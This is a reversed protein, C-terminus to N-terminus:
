QADLEAIVRGLEEIGPRIAELQIAAFGLRFHNRNAAPDDFFVDGREIVIGARLAAAALAVCDLDAPGQIWISVGGPPATIKWPLFDELAETLVQWKRQLQTRRRSITRHYQGSEILLAMARQPHGPIHRIKYRRQNRLETILESEAVLYGMRLGPALFKTFSGLYIVHESDPLAKLAPTPKGRYRFESDYDDEIVLAGAQRTGTLIQRRRSGSLTVNTPSHHSPTLYLLDLEGLSDPPVLGHEDVALPRLTAGTRAFTHRADVYGPNEVGVVTERGMMTQALLDLGQQSGATILINEPQVIIGRAPLVRKCLEEILFPDDEDVSDRLSYFLHPPDLSDRLARSWALRPFDRVDVQGAVFPYPYASWDRVKTIEPMGADERPRIHRSWDIASADMPAPRGAPVAKRLMETNIFYGRRSHSEIIGSALMEQYAANVTNRSLGLERALERSSPLPQNPVLSGSFIQHELAQRLQRYLPEASETSVAIPARVGDCAEAPQRQADPGPLRRDRSIDM